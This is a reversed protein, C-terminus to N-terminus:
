ERAADIANTLTHSGEIFEPTGVGATHSFRGHEDRQVHHGFEISLGAPDNVQIRTNVREGRGFDRSSTEVTVSDRYRGPHDDSEYPEGVPATERFRAAVAQGKADLKEALQTANLVLRDFAAYKHEYRAM